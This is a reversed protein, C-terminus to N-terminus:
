NNLEQALGFFYSLIAQYILDISENSGCLNTNVGM